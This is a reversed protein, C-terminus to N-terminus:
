TDLIYHEYATNEDTVEPKVANKWMVEYVARYEAFLISCSIHAEIKEVFKESANRMRLLVSRSIIM